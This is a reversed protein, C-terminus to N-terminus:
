TGAGFAVSVKVRVDGVDPASETRLAGLAASVCSSAAGGSARVASARRSEDIRLTVVVTEAVAPRCRELVPLLRMAARRVEAAPLAGDVDLAAIAAHLALSPRPVEPPAQLPAAVAVVPAEAVETRVINTRKNSRIKRPRPKADDSIKHVVRPALRPAPPQIDFSAIELNPPPPAAVAAVERHGGIMAFGTVVAAALLGGAIAPKHWRPRPPPSVETPARRDNGALADLADIVARADVYREARRRSVLKMVIAELAPPVVVREALAPTDIQMRLEARDEFPLEGGTLAEYMTMGLSYLDARPDLDLGALQEPAAYAPTGMAMGTSTLRVDGTLALGFDVIHPVDDRDILINEPKLDRHIVGRSHAHALGECVARAIRVVRDPDMPKGFLDFLTTGEVYDMVLYPLGSPMEGYDIVSVINPHALRSTSEAERLFRKRMSDTVAADGLLVKLAFRKNSLHTHRALYVRGMGGEGILEEIWYRDIRVGLLPDCAAVVVEAGDSPCRAYDKHYVAGCQSCCWITAVIV